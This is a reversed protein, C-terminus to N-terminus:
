IIIPISIIITTIITTTTVIILLVIFIIIIIVIIFVYWTNSLLLYFSNELSVIHSKCAHKASIGDTIIAQLQFLTYWPGLSTLTQFMVTPLMM